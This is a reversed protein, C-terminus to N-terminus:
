VVGRQRVVVFRYYLLGIALGVVFLLALTIKAMQYTWPPGEEEAEASEEEQNKGAGSETGADSQSEQGDEGEAGGEGGGQAEQGEGEEEQGAPAEGGEGPDQAFVTEDAAAHVPAVWSAGGAILLVLVLVIALRSRM